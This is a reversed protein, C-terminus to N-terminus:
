RAMVLRRARAFGIAGTVLGIALLVGVAPLAATWSPSAGHMDALGRLFWGHPTLLALTEM